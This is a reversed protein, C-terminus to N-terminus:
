PQPCFRAIIHADAEPTGESLQPRRAGGRRGLIHSWSGDTRMADREVRGGPDVRHLRVPRQPAPHSTGHVLNAHQEHGADERM